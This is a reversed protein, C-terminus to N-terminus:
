AAPRLAVLAYRGAPHERARNVLAAFHPPLVDPQPLPVGYIPPVIVSAASRARLHPRRRQLQEGCLHARGDSLLSPWSTSSRGCSRRTRSRSGRGSAWSRAQGAAGRAPLRPAHLPEGLAARGPQQLAADARARRAHERVDAAARAARPGRRLAPVPTLVEDREAPDDPFLRMDPPTREDIWALIEESEGISGEPTVLVPATATGARGSPPSATSRGARPAGRPLPHGARELAWRAKECYHSIPITVLRLM